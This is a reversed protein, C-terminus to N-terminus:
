KRKRRGLFGAGLLGLGLLSLTAPEPVLQSNTFESTTAGSFSVDKKIFVTQLGPLAVSNSAFSGDLSTAVLTYVPGSQCSGNVFAVTCVTEIVSVQGGQVIPAGQISTDVGILGGTVQYFILLDGTDTNNSFNANFQFGLNVESGVVGTGALSTLGVITPLFGGSVSISFNSFLLSTNPLVNCGTAGITTVDATGVCTPVASALSATLVVLGVLLIKSMTRNM